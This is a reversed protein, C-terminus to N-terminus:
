VAHIKFFMIVLHACIAVLANITYLMMVLHSCPSSWLALGAPRTAPTLVQHQILESAAVRHLVALWVLSQPEQQVWSLFHVAQLLCHM